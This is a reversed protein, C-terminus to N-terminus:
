SRGTKAVLREFRGLVADWRLHQRVYRRGNEGLRERLRPDGILLRLAEVFEDRTAYYLGANAQRCYDVAAANRASVLAPTGVAFSELVNTALLDDPEPALTVEAAEYAFMREREPLVGPMRFYRQEPIKMLKVGMLVLGIDGDAAAYSDFYELMEECGNDPEIRGGHLVFRGYLRHRRRFLVGRGALYDAPADEPAASDVEDPQTMEDAPDQQHRPYAYQVPPDIGIGVTEEHAPPAHLYQHALARETGSLYGVARASTLVEPWLGFRLPRSLQLYPFVVSREPAARLGLVTTQHYLSFFVLTDYANHHRRLHEILGLSTPGLRRVWEDEDARGRPGGALRASLQQFAASDHAQNVAFRRVLVGRVRDAGESCVNQWTLPDRACTTIVDVDHRESLHEALLRCAHEPGSAIDAGYRPTVFAFKM